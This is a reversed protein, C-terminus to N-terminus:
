KPFLFPISILYEKVYITSEEIYSVSFLMFGWWFTAEKFQSPRALSKVPTIPQPVKSLLSLGLWGLSEIM